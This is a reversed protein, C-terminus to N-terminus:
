TPGAREDPTSAAAVTVPMKAQTAATGTPQAKPPINDLGGALLRDILEVVGAGHDAATVWDAKEKLMPLANSVAVGYGCAALFAHDNEADGVGVTEEFRLGLEKLAVALGSAKNVGSPLIMVANKNFIVQMELGLDRITELVANEHPRWTAVIVRGVSVPEVGRQKLATLFVEPPAPGLPHEQDLAPRYLLAGNEAVVLDFIGLEPFVTKLEPAVRGTVLVLKGGTAQYRRLADLTAPHVRGSTALTGDYDTALCRFRM